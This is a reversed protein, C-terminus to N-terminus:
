CTTSVRMWRASNPAKSKAGKECRVKIIEQQYRQTHEFRAQGVYWTYRECLQNFPTSKTVQGRFSLCQSSKHGGNFAKGAASVTDVLEGSPLTYNTATSLVNRGNLIAAAHKSTMTSTKALEILKAIVSHKYM